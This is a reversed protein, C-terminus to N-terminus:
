AILSNWHFQQPVLAFTSLSRKCTYTCRVCETMVSFPCSMQNVRGAQTHPILWTVACMYINDRTWSSHIDSSLFPFFVVKNRRKKETRLRTWPEQICVWLGFSLHMLEILLLRENCEFLKVYLRPSIIDDCHSLSLNLFFVSFVNMLHCTSQFSRWGDSMSPSLSM